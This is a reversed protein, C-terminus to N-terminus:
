ETLSGYGGGGPTCIRISDGVRARIENKGGLNLRHGDQRIFINEGRSGAEGGELGYPPFVRRESLIAVNLPKLFELERVLGDGGCFQGKGGSGKRISFEHLLVPYRRELIEPDTIRTNTMHTHVGSQGHWDPGAGAGGGITEYYGFRENGFTFNNMCGQSGAAVGFARLVVDVVRQSTLVNGGVVAAEPSPDLLCGEPIILEIPILCGHNLPIDKEVLCRLSYLIASQTVARPANLNGRLETGTGTFDFIASGDSRDITLTLQIPSGDDLYETATITDREALGQNRSVECLSNRVAEEATEQVHLMYAQVVELGHYEVMELILDIGKQNAAVQAKLDSLNDGLLRTGSIAPRGKESKIKEPALLLDSIGQEQFVNNKVLKFSFIAAGEEILQRSDPPMSGPSIGGIDAHHGRSAVWFIITKGQFVPTMVTIDPLHSGGAAPHNAVLVDGPMIDKVRRIQEKVAESMAGLHVPVHPANAVLNGNAGFLACSFDLREKINTSIATKQLMRGMQEAISMFLNSFISLQVPDVETDIKNRTHGSVQIEVDGFDTIAAICDPEILITSTDQILIAPGEITYGAKLSDMTYLDTQQWGGEFYCSVTDLKEATSEGRDVLFSKLKSAKGISRVRLDDVLVARGPLEFGFERMYRTQFAKAFDGDAPKEIMLSGDTGQYRLNLYHLSQITDDTIGQSSLERVTEVELAALREELGPLGGETLVEAAPQQKEAVTDALGIGYASLIGAFRHIFISSIGLSRAIACAHQGGAGGFTALVHEKIDFGRMVSVERIPRVMVENAVELFGLATEEVSLPPRGSEKYFSNITDTLEAMQRYSEEVDLPQDENVGFINPFHDPRLRGLILNADTVALYGNKRYCVPGPHAGSSEPGVVFMGNDFFLRSGGGAAVTRIDLQPAQIRVGATKTEFTLDYDGGYRSVDTSTGGMDFGIVPKKTERSYTTMAYGVVGGAPGSLIARSGTFDEAPALGGDSQMFLLPTDALNDAFGKKFSQLYSRIHPTLYSDVMTTDGRSVLKVMPIVRSSLSVQEFGLSLALNGVAQEHEPCAYAHLFIVALSTIGRKLLDELQPKILELDPELLVAFEEGTVGTLVKHQTYQSKEHSHLIRIREDVEIVERYLLDPKKIRLDFLHPRDQNGIRLVDGFGRTIVLACPAGKRELLANTAVTTGMRIWEIQSADIGKGEGSSAYEELIRRIGERPADDYNAPDESLLKVVKFGPKGPVEAYVDTFTGGRDISFRFTHTDTNAM